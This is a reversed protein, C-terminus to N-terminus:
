DDGPLMLTLVPEGNDGPGIHAIVAVTEKRNPNMLFDIKFTVRDTGKSTQAAFMALMLLDHLRGGQSQGEGELGACPVVYGTFLHDTVVTNVEFGVARAAETVDILVGDAIAQARSYSYVVNWADLNDSM